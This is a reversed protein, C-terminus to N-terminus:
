IKPAGLSRGAMAVRAARAAGAAKFAAMAFSGWAGTTGCPSAEWRRSRSTQCGSSGARRMLVILPFRHILSWWTATRWSLVVLGVDLGVRVWAWRPRSTTISTTISTAISTTISTTITTTIAAHQDHGSPKKLWMTVQDVKTQAHVHM